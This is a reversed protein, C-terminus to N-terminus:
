FVLLIEKNSVMLMVSYPNQTIFDVWYCVDLLIFAAREVHVVTAGAGRRSHNVLVTKRKMNWKFHCFCPFAISEGTRINNFTKVITLM